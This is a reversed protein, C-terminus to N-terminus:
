EKRLQRMLKRAPVLRSIVSKDVGLASAVAGSPVGAALLQLILLKKIEELTQATQASSDDSPRKKAPM